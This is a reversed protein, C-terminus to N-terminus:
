EDESFECTKNSKILQKIEQFKSDELQGKRIDAELTSDVEMTVAGLENVFVLSLEQFEKCLEPPLERAALANCHKKGSLADAVVNAKSLHYNIGVDYNKILELWRRQRLNLDSQTFICKLSKHDTYIDL